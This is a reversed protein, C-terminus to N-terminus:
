SDNIAVKKVKIILRRTILRSASVCKAAFQLLGLLSRLEKRSCFKLTMWNDLANM